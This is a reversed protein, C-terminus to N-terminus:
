GAALVLCAYVLFSSFSCGIICWIYHDLFCQEWTVASAKARNKIWLFSKAKIEELITTISKSTGSFILENRSSWLCWITVLCVAHFAKKKKVSGHFRKHDELIDKFSFALFYPAKCWQYVLQWVTQALECTVFHHESTEPSEGCVACVLNQVPVGRRSLALRTPLREKQARWAVLGVKKPIWSNWLVVYDPPDCTLEVLVKKISAVNFQRLDDLKWVWSDRGSSVVVHQLLATLQQVELVEEAGVFAALGLDM